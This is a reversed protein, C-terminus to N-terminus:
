PLAALVESRVTTIAQDANVDVVKVAGRAWALVPSTEAHYTAIRKRVTEAKDDKRQVVTDECKMCRNDPGPPSHVVHYTAGCSLCSRRGSLRAEVVEDPVVLNLVVDVDRGREKLWARLLDAQNVTRPFGDFLVGDRADDEDLRSAVVEMVVADPVLKGESIFGRVKEGLPTGNKLHHRFIDGTSVHVIDASESVATAQTGKGAGPPGFLIIDM